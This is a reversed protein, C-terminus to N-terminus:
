GAHLERKPLYAHVNKPDDYLYGTSALVYLFNVNERRPVPVSLLDLDSVTDVNRGFM